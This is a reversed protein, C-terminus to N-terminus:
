AQKSQLQGHDSLYPAILYFLEGQSSIQCKRYLQKRLVKVTQPSIGLTLGISVSSHGQLILLAIEAQRASLSIELESSLRHRLLDVVDEPTDSGQPRLDSWNQRVLANVVPALQRAQELDRSSFRSATTADRGLCVTMSVGQTPSSFFAIEDALTTRQYYSKYYENRHFQDPAIDSLRYMGDAADAAHLSYFPDLLYAGTVYHSNMREFVRKESAQTLFVEPQQSKFFAVITMNDIRLCAGLWNQLRQAFGTTGISLITDALLEPKPMHDM